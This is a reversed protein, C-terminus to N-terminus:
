RRLDSSLYLSPLAKGTNGGGLRWKFIYINMSAGLMILEGERTKNKEMASKVMLISYIKSVKNTKRSLFTLFNLLPLFQDTKKMAIIGASLVIGLM